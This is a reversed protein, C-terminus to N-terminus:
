GSANRVGLVVTYNGAAQYVHLPNESTAFSTTNGDGFTWRREIIGFGTSEDTFNVALPATGNRPAANFAAFPVLLPGPAPPDGPPAPPPADVTM